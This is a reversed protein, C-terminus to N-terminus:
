VMSYNPRGVVAVNWLTALSSSSDAVSSSSAAAALATVDEMVGAAMETAVADARERKLERMLHEIMRQLDSAVGTWADIEEDATDLLRDAEACRQLHAIVGAPLGGSYSPDIDPSGVAPSKTLLGPLQVALKASALVQQRLDVIETDKECVAIQLQQRLQAQAKGMAIARLAAAEATAADHQAAAAADSKEQELRMSHRLEARLELAETEYQKQAAAAAADSKEQGLRMSHRLEARLELAETEHQKQAAAAAADSKEQELRMSHRLEARLELAETEYQKQAVAAAAELQSLQHRTAAMQVAMEDKAQTMAHAHEARLREALHECARECARVKWARLRNCEKENAALAAAVADAKEQELEAALLLREQLARQKSIVNASSSSSAALATVDEVVGAAMEAAVADARERKLERMLHEIKAKATHQQSLIRSAEAIGRAIVAAENSRLKCSSNGTQGSACLTIENDSAIWSRLSVYPFSRIIADADDATAITV